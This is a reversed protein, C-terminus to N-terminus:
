VGGLHGKKKFFFIHIYAHTLTEFLNATSLLMAGQLKISSTKTPCLNQIDSKPSAKQKKKKSVKPLIIIVKM